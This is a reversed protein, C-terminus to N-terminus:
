LSTHLGGQLHLGVVPKVDVDMLGGQYVIAAHVQVEVVFSHHKLRPERGIGLSIHGM